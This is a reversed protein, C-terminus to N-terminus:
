ISSSSVRRQRSNSSATWARGRVRRKDTSGQSPEAVSEARLDRPRRSSLGGPFSEDSDKSQQAAVAQGMALKKTSPMEGKSRANKASRSLLMCRRAPLRSQYLILKVRTCIMDKQIKKCKTTFEHLVGSRGAEGSRLAQLSRIKARREPQKCSM